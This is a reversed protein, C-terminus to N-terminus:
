NTMGGEWRMEKREAKGEMEWRKGMEGETQWGGMENGAAGSVM